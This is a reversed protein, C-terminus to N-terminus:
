GKVLLARIKGELEDRNLTGLRVSHLSGDPAFIATLPLAQATNGLPATLSLHQPTAILLPYPVQKERAFAAVSDPRDISIGVFQVPANEFQRSVEAFDPIEKLCPPCWTAWFNAVIIRGKWQALSQRQGSADPLTLALIPAGAEAPLVTEAAPAAHMQRTLYGAAGATVAVLLVLANRVLPTM